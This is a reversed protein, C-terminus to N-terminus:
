PAGKRKAGSALARIQGLQHHLLRQAKEIEALAELVEFKNMQKMPLRKEAKGDFTLLDIAIGDPKAKIQGHALYARTAYVHEWQEIRRVAAKGHGGFDCRAITEKLSRLRTVAAPSRADKGVDVGAAELVRLCEAVSHEARAFVEICCGRWACVTVSWQELSFFGIENVNFHATM